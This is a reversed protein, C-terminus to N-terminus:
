PTSDSERRPTRSSEGLSQRATMSTMPRQSANTRKNKWVAKIRRAKTASEENARMFVLISMLFSVPDNSLTDSTYLKGDGLTVVAIGEDCIDELIRVAKRATLRSIRDLSEVLLYSGKPVLGTRVAELFDGLRGEEANKGRYGSVGLDHFTLTEDLDLGNVEAYRTALDTQRRLSDGKQQEPTSFRLYSYAKTM